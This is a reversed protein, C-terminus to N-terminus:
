IDKLGLINGFLNLHKQGSLPAQVNIHCVFLVLLFSLITIFYM